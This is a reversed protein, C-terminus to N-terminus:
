CLYTGRNRTADGEEEDSPLPAMSASFRSGSRTVLDALVALSPRSDSEIASITPPPTSDARQHGQHGPKREMPKTDKSGTPELPARHVLELLIAVCALYHIALWKWVAGRGHPEGSKAPKRETFGAPFKTASEILM